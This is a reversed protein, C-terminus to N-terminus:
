RLFFTGANASGAMSGNTIATPEASVFAVWLRLSSSTALKEGHGFFAARPADVEDGGARM